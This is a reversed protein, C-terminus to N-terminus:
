LDGFSQSILNNILRQILFNVAKIRRFGFIVSVTIYDIGEYVRVTFQSNPFSKGRIKVNVDHRGKTVPTYKVTFTGDKNHTIKNNVSFGEPAQVKVKVVDSSFSDCCTQKRRDFVEIIFFTEIEVKATSLGPGYLKTYTLFISSTTIRGLNEAIKDVATVDYKHDVVDNEDPERYDLQESNLKTLRETMLDLLEFIEAESGHQFAYNVFQCASKNNVLLLQLSKQQQELTSSKASYLHDINSLLEDCRNEIARVCKETCKRVAQKTAITRAYLRAAMDQVEEVAKNIPPVKEKENRELLEKVFPKKTALAESLGTFM